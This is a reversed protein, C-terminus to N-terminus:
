ASWGRRSRRRCLPTDAPVRSCAQNCCGGPSALGAGAAPLVWWHWCAPAPRPRGAPRAALWSRGSPPLAVAPGAAAPLAVSPGAAAPPVAGVETQSRVIAAATQLFEADAEVAEIGSLDAEGDVAAIESLLKAAKAVELIGAAPPLTCAPPRTPPRAQCPMARQSLPLPAFPCSALLSAAKLLLSCGTQSPLPACAPHPQQVLGATPPHQGWLCRELVCAVVCRVFHQSSGCLKKM